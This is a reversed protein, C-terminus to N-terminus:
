LETRIPIRTSITTGQGEISDVLLRGGHADIVNKVVRTGLGTGGPKTSRVRGTFLQAAIEPPMGCGTDRVSLEVYHGDPFAGAIEARTRVTVAGGDPTAGLANNVLNYLANYLRRADHYIPPMDGLEQCLAIGHQEAVVGLVRCVGQVVENIDALEYEPPSTLGKVTDALEKTRQQAIETSEESIAIVEDIDAIMRRVMDEIISPLERPGRDSRALLALIDEQFGGLMLRVTQGAMSVPTLLNKIDHTIQGLLDVIVAARAREHLQATIVAAAIQGGLVEVVALDEADFLGSHKNLVQLVGISEGTSARLPVTIMSRTQYDAARDIDLIHARDATVDHSIRAQGGHFVEGAIGQTDAIELGMVRAKTPGEVHRFILKEREPDHLLLSGADADVTSMAALVAQRVLEDLRVQAQLARTIGVVAELERERQRLRQQLDDCTDTM